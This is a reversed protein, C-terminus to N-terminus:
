ARTAASKESSTVLVLTGLAAALLSGVVCGIKAVSATAGPLAAQDALLLAVTDAVGCLCAAGVFQRAAVGSPALAVGSRIALWSALSIGLPKGIVLGLVVGGLVRTAGDSSLDLALTVGTASFAFLPLVVFASWPALAKEIRDAPSLLRESAASLNRSAWDWVPERDVRRADGKGATKPQEKLERETQELAALLVRYAHEGGPQAGLLYPRDYYIPDIEALEVFEEIEMAPSKKASLTALEEPELAVFRGPEIEYGKVLEAFPVEEGDTASVRKM